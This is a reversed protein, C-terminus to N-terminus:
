VLGQVLQEVNAPISESQTHACTSASTSEKQGETSKKILMGAQCLAYGAIDIWSDLHSPNYRIRAMKMLIMLISVSTKDFKLGTMITWLEAINQFNDEPDGYNTNRDKLICQKVQEIAALRGEYSTM